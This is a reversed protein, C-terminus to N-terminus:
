ITLPPNNLRTQILGIIHEGERVPEWGFRQMGELDKDRSVALALAGFRPAGGSAEVIARMGDVNHAGDWWLRPTGPCPELRGPWRAAAFGEEVAAAPIAIGRAALDVIDYGKLTTEGTARYYEGLAYAVHGPEDPRPQEGPAPLITGDPQISDINHSLMSRAM